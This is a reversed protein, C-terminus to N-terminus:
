ASLVTHPSFSSIATPCHRYLQECVFVALQSRYSLIAPKCSSWLSANSVIVTFRPRPRIGIVIVRAPHCFLFPLGTISASSLLYSFGHLTAPPPHLPPRRLPELWTSGGVVRNPVDLPCRDHSMKEGVSPGLQREQAVTKHRFVRFPFRRQRGTLISRV